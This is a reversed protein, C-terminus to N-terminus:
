SIAKVKYLENQLHSYKKKDRKAKEITSTLEDIKKNLAPLPDENFGFLIRLKSIVFHVIM